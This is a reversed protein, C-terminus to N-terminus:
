RRPEAVTLPRLTKKKQESARLNSHFVSLPDDMYMKDRFKVLELSRFDISIQKPIWAMFQAM